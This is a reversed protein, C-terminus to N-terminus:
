PDPKLGAQLDDDSVGLFNLAETSVGWVTWKVKDFLSANNSFSMQIWKGESRISYHFRQLVSLDVYDIQKSIRFLIRQSAPYVLSIKPDATGELANLTNVASQAGATFVNLASFVKGLKDVVNEAADPIAKIAEAFDKVNAIDEIDLQDDPIVGGLKVLPTEVPFMYYGPNTLREDVTGGALASLVDGM